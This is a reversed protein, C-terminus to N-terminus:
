LEKRINMCNESNVKYTRLQNIWFDEKEKLKKKDGIRVGDILTVKYHDEFTCESNFFHQGLM